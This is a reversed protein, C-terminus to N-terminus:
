LHAWSYSKRNLIKLYNFNQIQLVKQSSLFAMKFYTVDDCHLNWPSLLFEHVPWTPPPGWQVYESPWMVLLYVWFGSFMKSPHTQHATRSSKFIRGDKHGTKFLVDMADTHSAFPCKEVPLSLFTSHWCATNTYSIFALVGLRMKWGAWINNKYFIRKLKWLLHIKKTREAKIYASISDNKRKLFAQYTKSLKTLLWWNLKILNKSKEM